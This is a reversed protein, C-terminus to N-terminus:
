IPKLAKRVIFGCTSLDYFMIKAVAPECYIILMNVLMDTLYIKSNVHSFDRSAYFLYAVPVGSVHFLM